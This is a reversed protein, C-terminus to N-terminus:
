SWYRWYSPSDLREQCGNILGATLVVKITEPVKFWTDGSAMACGLLNIWRRQFAGIAGYTCTHSVAGIVLDGPGVIGSDPLLTHEIGNRGIDFLSPSKTRQL